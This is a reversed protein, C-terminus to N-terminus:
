LFSSLEASKKDNFNMNKEVKKQQVKIPKSIKLGILETLKEKRNVKPPKGQIIHSLGM